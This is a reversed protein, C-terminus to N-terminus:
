EIDIIAPQGNRRRNAQESPSNQPVYWGAETMVSRHLKAKRDLDMAEAVTMTASANITAKAPRTNDAVGGLDAPAVPARPKAIRRAKGQRGAEIAADPDSAFANADTPDTPQEGPIQVDTAQRPM